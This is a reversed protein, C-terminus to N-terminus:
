VWRISMVRYEDAPTAPLGGPARCSITPVQRAVEVDVVAAADELTVICKASRGDQAPSTRVGHAGALWGTEVFVAREAAQAFGREAGWWGRCRGAVADAPASRDLVSGVLSLDMHAWMRGDPLTMGTPAFRHGGTHSVRHVTVDALAQEALLAFREGDSGCCVDHTGQVCVLLTPPAERSPAGAAVAQVQAHLDDELVFEDRRAGSGDRVFRILRPPGESAPRPVAALLRSPVDLDGVVDMIGVLLPHDRVPKPWPRPVEALFLQDARIASGVPDFGQQATFISCRPAADPQPLLEEIGAVTM